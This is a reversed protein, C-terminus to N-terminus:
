LPGSIRNLQSWSTPAGLKAMRWLLLREVSHPEPLEALDRERRWGGRLYGRYAAELQKAKRSVAGQYQAMATRVVVRKREAQTRPPDPEVAVRCLASRLADWQAPKLGDRIDLVFGPGEIKM